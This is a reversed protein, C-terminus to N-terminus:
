RGSTEARAADINAALVAFGDDLSGAPDPGVGALEDFELM